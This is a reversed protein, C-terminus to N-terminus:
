GQTNIFEAIRQARESWDYRKALQLNSNHMNRRTQPDVSLKLIMEAFAISENPPFFHCNDPDSLVTRISPLDAAVIPLGCALYELMKIPCTYRCGEVSQINPLVAISARKAYSLARSWSMAGPCKVQDDIGKVRCTRQLRSLSAGSGGVVLFDLGCHRLSGVAEILVDVGKWNQLSGVYIVFPKPGVGISNCQADNAAPIRRIGQADVGNPVFAVSKGEIGITKNLDEAIYPGTVIIREATGVARKESARSVYSSVLHYVKHMELNIRLRRSLFPPLYSVLLPLSIDRTYIDRYGLLLAYAIGLFGYVFRMVTPFYSGRRPFLLPLRSRDISARVSLSRCLRNFSNAGTYPSLFVVPIRTSLAEITRLAQLTNAQPESLQTAYIYLLENRM